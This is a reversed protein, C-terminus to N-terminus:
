IHMDTIAELHIRFAKSDREGEIGREKKERERGKAKKKEREREKARM